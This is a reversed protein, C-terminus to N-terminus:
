VPWFYPIDDYNEPINHFQPRYYEADKRVLNCRHSFTIKDRIVPDAIWFPIIFPHKNMRSWFFRRLGAKDEIERADCELCIYYAYVCLSHEYGKWMKVAPHNRWGVAPGVVNENADLRIGRAANYIQMCEVRQKNLRRSDLAFACSKFDRHPLFTQMNTKNQTHM